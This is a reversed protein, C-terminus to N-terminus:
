LAGGTRKETVRFVPACGGVSCALNAYALGGASNACFHAVSGPYPDALWYGWDVGHYQKAVEDEKPLAAEIRNPTVAGFIEAPM